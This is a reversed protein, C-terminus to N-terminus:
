FGPLKLQAHVAPLASPLNARQPLLHLHAHPILDGKISVYIPQSGLVAQYHRVLTQACQLLSGPNPMNWVYAYHTKPIIITHGPVQPRQDLFALHHPDQYILLCPQHGAVIQCFPCTDM